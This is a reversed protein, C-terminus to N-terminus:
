PQVPPVCLAEPQVLNLYHGHDATVIVVTDNWAKKAEIWDFVRKVARDGSLVAGISSDVNNAHNAWDVDGAEIMLWFGNKNQSLFDLASEAMDALTPNEILDAESYSEAERMDEVPRFDGNATQFPLHGLKAGFFGFLRTQNAIATATAAKLLESGNKGAARQVLTYRSTSRTQITEADDITLYRNGPVFNNGQGGPKTAEEGWGCGILLDLGSLPQTPHSISPLGLLDRTLDQFDERSVNHAYTAAPTAHSIPVSTVAGVSM